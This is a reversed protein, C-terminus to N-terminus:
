TASYEKSKIKTIWRHPLAVNNVPMSATQVGPPRSVFESNSRARIPQYARQLKLAGRLTKIQLTFIWKVAKGFTKLCGFEAIYAELQRRSAALLEM